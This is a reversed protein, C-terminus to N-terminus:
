TRVLNVLAAAVGPLPLVVHAIGAKAAERPMGYVVSTAADQAVVYGGAEHIARLGIIGDSGMGTLIVAVVDAGFARAASAFLHDASPRFGSEGPSDTVVLRGDERVGLHRDDPALYVTGVRAPDGHKAVRVELRCNADLWQALGDVFNVAIHQVVLIPAPFDAPLAGLVRSLAAPGGTSAAMVVLRVRRRPFAAVGPVPMRVSPRDVPAGGDSGPAGTLRVVKVQALTKVMAILHARETDFGASRPNRPKSLLMLAGAGIADLSLHVEGGASSGTLIIIPTPVRSMIRKTAALGDMVPMHVDMTILDPRLEIAMRVAEEGTRAQGVVAIGADSELITVLLERQTVSDDTVLVRTAPTM